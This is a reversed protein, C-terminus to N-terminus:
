GQVAQFIWRARIKVNSLRFYLTGGEYAVHEEDGHWGYTSPLQQFLPPQDSKKQRSRAYLKM